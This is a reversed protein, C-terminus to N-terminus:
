LCFDKSRMISNRIFIIIIIIIIIFTVKKDPNLNVVERHQEGDQLSDRVSEIARLWSSPSPHPPIGVLPFPPSLPLLHFLHDSRREEETETHFMREVVTDMHLGRVAFVGPRPTDSAMTQCGRVQLLTFPDGYGEIVSVTFNNCMSTPDTASKFGLFQGDDKLM